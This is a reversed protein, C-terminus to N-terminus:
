IGTLAEVFRDLEARSHRETVAVLFCDDLEPYFRGLDVGGLIKHAALAALMPGAKGGGRRRVVFENFTPAAFPLEFGAGVLAAKLYESKSLCLAGLQQYGSKGLLCMRVTLCLAMLGHNTCINSTAKDRRIHQERTALTLVYGRQGEADVTEGVLRGPVNQLMERTGKCAFLGCGPGGFQPPIGLPQGEGAAVDAGLAGPPALVSLAQTECTATVLLAGHQQALAGLVRLDEVAGFVNPYGILV